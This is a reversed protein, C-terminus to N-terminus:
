DVISQYVLSRFEDGLTTRHPLIQVMYIGILNEQPDIWFKTGAAGGWNFEGKSTYEGLEGPGNSVAFGLGFGYGGATMPGAEIGGMHDSTMLEVTKPSLIRTGDIQGGGLMMMCFRMYDSATSALGGGGSFFTAPDKSVYNRSTIAPAPEIETSTNQALFANADGPTGKPAYLQAFRSRKEPPVWFSTDVMGLPGFIRDNLFEEFTQGSVVEVLRGLVDTNVGYHWRTGPEYQLPIESLKGVFEELDKDALLLGAARYKQDVESNGFFGYTLGGTHRLLDRVTMQKKADRTKGAEGDEDATATAVQLSALEPIYKGVPDNLFLKGEEYLIMVAVSTIPKSMSYIRFITDERMPVSNERDAEGWTELYAIKGNRAIMGLAGTMVKNDVHQQMSQGIRALRDASLGVDGPKAKPLGNALLPATAVLVLCAFAAALRCAISRKSPYRPQRM